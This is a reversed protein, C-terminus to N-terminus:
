IRRDVERGVALAVGDVGVGILDAQARRGGGGELELWLDLLFCQGHAVAPARHRQQFPAARAGHRAVILAVLLLKPAVSSAESVASPM